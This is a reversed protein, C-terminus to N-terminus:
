CFYAQKGRAKGSIMIQFDIFIRVNAVSADFEVWPTKVMFIRIGGSRTGLWLARHVGNIRRYRFGGTLPLHISGNQPEPAM